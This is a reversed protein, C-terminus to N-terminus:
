ASTGGARQEMTEGHVGLRITLAWTSRRQDLGRDGLVWAGERGRALEAPVGPVPRAPV